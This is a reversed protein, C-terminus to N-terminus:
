DQKPAASTSAEYMIHAMGSLLMVNGFQCVEDRVSGYCRWVSANMVLSFGRMGFLFTDDGFLLLGFGFQLM